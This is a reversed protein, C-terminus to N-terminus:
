CEPRRRRSGAYPRRVPLGAGAATAAGWLLDGAHAASQAAAQHEFIFLVDILKGLPGDARDGIVGRCAQSIRLFPIRRNHFAYAIPLAPISYLAWAMPGWHFMGYMAAWEAAEATGAEIGFPPAQYYYAWEITSWYLLSTGIGACFLMAIWSLKRFEPEAEPGGFRVSGYKGFAFWLLMGSWPLPARCPQRPAAGEPAAGVKQYTERSSSM